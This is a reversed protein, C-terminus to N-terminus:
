KVSVHFTTGPKLKIGTAAVFSQKTDHIIYHEQRDDGKGLEFKYGNYTVKVSGPHARRTAILRVRKRDRKLGFADCLQYRCLYFERTATAFSEYGIYHLIIKLTKM